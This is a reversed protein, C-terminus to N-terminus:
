TFVDHQLHARFVSDINGAIGRYQPTEFGFRNLKWRVSPGINASRLMWCSRWRYLILLRMIHFPFERGRVRVFLFYLLHPRAIKAHWDNPRCFVFDWRACTCLNTYRTSNPKSNRVTTQNATTSIVHNRPMYSQKSRDIVTSSSASIELM